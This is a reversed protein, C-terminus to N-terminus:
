QSMFSCNPMQVCNGVSCIVAETRNWTNKRMVEKQSASLTQMWRVGERLHPCDRVTAHVAQGNGVAVKSPTGRIRNREQEERREIM